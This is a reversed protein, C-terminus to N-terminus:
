FSNKEDFPNYRSPCTHNILKGSEDYERVKSNCGDCFAYISM